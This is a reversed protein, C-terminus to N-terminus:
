SSVETEIPQHRQDPEIEQNANKAGPAKPPAWDGGLALFLDIRTNWADARTTILGEEANRLRRETELVKLFPEVGRSYRKRAIDDAAQAEALRRRAHELRERNARDAVLADEVERLATLVAGAYAAGAAEARARAADVEARRAGGSFIPGVLNAVANYVISQVDLLDSVSDSTSGASGTLSLNPYLDALAAGIGYTASALQMEAQMLDPRRDLLAAPIGAPVPQLDPLDPLTEPLPGSSGPIRGVLVDLALQAKREVTRLTQEWSLRIGHAIDLARQATAVQVRTRVVAAIVSHQVTERAAEEALLGAWAAQRTRKLKGFLDLQYSVNIGDSYTTSYITKRGVEPLVFSTKTRSASLNYGVQPWLTSEVLETTTPDGFRTWWPTVDDSPIASEEANYFRTTEDAATRPREADPGLTCGSIGALILVSIPVLAAPRRM